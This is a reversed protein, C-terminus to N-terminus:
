YKEGSSHGCKTYTKLLKSTNPTCEMKGGKYAPGKKSMNSIKKVKAM